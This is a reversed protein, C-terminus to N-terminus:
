AVGSMPLRYYSCGKKRFNKKLEKASSRQQFEAHRLVKKKNPSSNTFTKGDINKIHLKEQGYSGENEQLEQMLVSTIM